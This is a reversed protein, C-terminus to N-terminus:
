RSKKNYTEILQKNKITQDFYNVRKLLKIGAIVDYVARPMNNNENLGCEANYLTNFQNKQEKIFYKDVANGYYGSLTSIIQSYPQSLIAGIHEKHVLYNIMKEYFAYHEQAYYYPNNLYEEANMVIEGIVPFEERPIADDHYAHALASLINTTTAYDLGQQRIKHMLQKDHTRTLLGLQLGFTGKNESKDIIHQPVKEYKKNFLLEKKIGKISHFSTALSNEYENFIRNLTTENIKDETANGGITIGIINHAQKLTSGTGGRKTSESETTISGHSTTSGIGTCFTENPTNHFLGKNFLECMRRIHATGKEAQKKFSQENITTFKVKLEGDWNLGIILPEESKKEITLNTINAKKFLKSSYKLTTPTLEKTSPNKTTIILNNNWPVGTSATPHVGFCTITSDSNWAYKYTKLKLHQKIAFSLPGTTDEEHITYEQNFSDVSINMM